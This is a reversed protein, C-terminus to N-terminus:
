LIRRGLSPKELVLSELNEKAKKYSEEDDIIAVGEMIFKNRPERIRYECTTYIGRDITLSVEYGQEFALDVLGRIIATRTILVPMTAKERIRYM